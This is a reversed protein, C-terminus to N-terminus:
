EKGEWTWQLGREAAFAEIITLLDAMDRIGLRSTRMGVPVMGKDPHPVWKSASLSHMFFDKWEDETLKMGHWEVARSIEALCAWMRANQDTSRTPPSITVQAGAEAAYIAACANRRVLPSHLWFRATSM